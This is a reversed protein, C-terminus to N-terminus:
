GGLENSKKASPNYKVESLKVNRLRSVDFAYVDAYWRLMEGTDVVREETSIIVMPSGDYLILYKEM